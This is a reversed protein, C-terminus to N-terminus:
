KGGSAMHQWAVGFSSQTVIKYVGHVVCNGYCSISKGMSENTKM